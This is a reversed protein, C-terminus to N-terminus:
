TPTNPVHLIAAPLNVRRWRCPVQLPLSLLLTGCWMACPATYFYRRKKSSHELRATGFRIFYEPTDILHDDLFNVEDIYM